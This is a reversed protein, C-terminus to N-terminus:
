QDVAPPFDVWFVYGKRSAAALVEHVGAKQEESFSGFLERCTAVVTADSVRTPRVTQGPALDLVRHLDDRSSVLAPDGAAARVAPHNPSHAQGWGM